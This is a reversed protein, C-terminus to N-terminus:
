QIVEQYRKIPKLYIIHSKKSYIKENVYKLSRKYISQDWQYLLCFLLRWQSRKQIESKGLINADM